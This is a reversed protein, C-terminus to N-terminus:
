IEAVFMELALRQELLGSKINHDVQYARLLIQRLQGISYSEAFQLAKKLRFEHVELTKQIAPLSNGEKRMEKASLMIEFQSCILALLKYVNEGSDLISRLRLFAEPKDDRSLADMMAFVDTDINGCVVSLFDEQTVENGSAHAIAKKLDNELHFLTYETERDFYGTQDIFAAIATRRAQKNAQALRKEVIGTLLPRTLPGFDYAGGSEAVAKYLRRRKDATEATFVLLTTEPIDKVYEILLKEDGEPLNKSKGGSLPLFDSVLVVRKESFLPLTECANRIDQWTADAGALKSYELAATAPNVYQKVIANVAWEILYRERGYFFLPGHLQNEKLQKQIRQYAHEENKASKYTKPKYAM